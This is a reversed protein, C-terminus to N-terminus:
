MLQQSSVPRPGTSQDYYGVDLHWLCSLHAGATNKAAGRRRRSTTRGRLDPTFGLQRSCIERLETLHGRALQRAGDSLYIDGDNADKLCYFAWGVPSFATQIDVQFAKFVTSCCGGVAQLKGRIEDRSASSRLWGHLHLRGQQSEEKVVVFDGLRGLMALENRVRRFVGDSGDFGDRRRDSFHVTFAHVKGYDFHMANAVLVAKDFNSKAEWPRLAHHVHLDDIALSHEGSTTPLPLPSGNIKLALYIPQDAEFVVFKKSPDSKYGDSLVLGRASQTMRVLPRGTRSRKASSSVGILVIAQVAKSTKSGSGNFKVLKPEMCGTSREDASCAQSM